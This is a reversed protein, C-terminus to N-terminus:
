KADKWQKWPCDPSHPLNVDACTCAPERSVAVKTTPTYELDIPYDDANLSGKGIMCEQPETEGMEGAPKISHIHDAAYVELTVVEDGPEQTTDTVTLTYKGAVDPTFHPNQTTADVLELDHLGATLIKTGGIEEVVAQLPATYQIEKIRGVIKGGILRVADGIKCNDMGPALPKNFCEKLGAEYKEQDVSVYSPSCHGCACKRASKGVICKGGPMGPRHHDNRAYSHTHGGVPQLTREKYKFPPDCSVLGGEPDAVLKAVAKPIERFMKDREIRCPGCNFHELHAPVAACERGCADCKRDYSMNSKESTLRGTETGHIASCGSRAAQASSSHGAVVNHAGYMAAYRAAKASKSQGAIINLEATRGIGQQATIVPEGTEKAIQLAKDVRDRERNLGGMYYDVVREEVKSYDVEAFPIESPPVREEAPLRGAEAELKHVRDYLRQVDTQLASIELRFSKQVRTIAELIEDDRTV